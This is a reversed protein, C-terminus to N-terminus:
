KASFENLMVSANQRGERSTKVIGVGVTQPFLYNCNLLSVLMLLNNAVSAM